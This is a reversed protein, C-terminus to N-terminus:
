RRVRIGESSFEIFGFRELWSERAKRQVESQHETMAAGRILAQICDDCYGYALDIGTGCECHRHPKGAYKCAGRGKPKRECREGTWSGNIGVPKRTAQSLWAREDFDAM